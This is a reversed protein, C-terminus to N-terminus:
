APLGAHPATLHVSLAADSLPSVTADGAVAYAWDAVSIKRGAWPAVSRGAVVLSEITPTGALAGSRVSLAAGGVEIAGGFLSVGRTSARGNAADAKPCGNTQVNTAHATLVSGDAPYAIADSADDEARPPDAVPGVVLPARGPELLAFAGVSLCQKSLRAAAAGVA